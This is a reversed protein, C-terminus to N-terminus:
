ATKAHNRRLHWQRATLLVLGFLGGAMHGTEPVPIANTLPDGLRKQDDPNMFEATIGGAFEAGFIAPDPVVNVLEGLPVDSDRPAFEVLSDKFGTNGAFIVGPPAVGDVRALNLVGFGMPNSSSGALSFPNGASDLLFWDFSLKQGPKFDSIRFTFGDMVNFGDDIRELPHEGVFQDTNLWSPIVGGNLAFNAIAPAGPTTGSARWELATSTKVTTAWTNGDAPYLSRMPINGPPPQEARPPTLMRGFPDTGGGGFSVQSSTNLAMSVGFVPKDTWNLVEFEFDFTNGKPDSKVDVIDTLRFCFVKPLSPEPPPDARVLGQTFPSLFLLAAFGTSGVFCPGSHSSLSTNMTFIATETVAEVVQQDGKM